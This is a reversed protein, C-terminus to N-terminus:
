NTRFCKLNGLRDKCYLRSNSLVIHPWADTRSFVSKEALINLRRPSRAATDMLSLKGRGTWGILRDDSTVIMSGADGTQGGSWILEGNELSLCHFKRWCFYVHGDSIVPSCVKSPTKREWLKRAGSLTIEFCAMRNQNYASTVVVKQDSVAVTAINNAFSTVWPVEVITEGEHGTDIRLILLGDHNLVAVCDAGQVRIPVPGGNHGGPSKSQSRWKEKGTAPDFGILNGQRAGVEVVLTENILLPSSTFGYDRLGSRGVKPRRPIEYDDYLSRTWIMKGQQNTDWCTLQGDSGLTFLWGSQRDFEPTSSPGSFLGQDGVARRGFRPAPYSKKWILNGVNADFCEIWERGNKWSFLYLRDGVVVPSSSGEGSRISFLEQLLWKGDRFGSSEASHDNRSPGRWHPWDDMGIAFQSSALLFTVLCAVCVYRSIVTM